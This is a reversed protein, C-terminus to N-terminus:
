LSVELDVTGYQRNDTYYGNMTPEQISNRVEVDKFQKWTFSVSLMFRESLRISSGLGVEWNDSEALGPEFTRIPTAGHEYQGLLHMVVNKSLTLDAALRYSTVDNFERAQSLLVEGNDSNIAEQVEFLSWQSWAVQPRLTLQEDVRLSGEIRVSQPVPLNFNARAHSEDARAFTLHVQGKVDYQIESHWSIGLGWGPSPQWQLGAVWGIASAEGDEFLIRGEAIGGSEDVLSDSGDPNRARVTSLQTHNFIPTAGVSLNLPRYKIGVGLATSLILLNTNVTAWRQPGDVAGPFEAPAALNKRWNTKGARDIFWALGLGLEFDNLKLGHSVAIAPVLGFAGTQNEGANALRFEDPVNNEEAYRDFTAHRNVALVHFNLRTGDRGLGAPNWYTAFAGQNLAGAQMGDFRGVFFPNAIGPVPLCAVVLISIIFRAM